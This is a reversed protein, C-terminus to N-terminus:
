VIGSLNSERSYGYVECYAVMKLLRIFEKFGERIDSAKVKFVGSYYNPVTSVLLMNARNTIPVKNYQKRIYQTLMWSYMM